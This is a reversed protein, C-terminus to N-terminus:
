VQCFFIKSLEFNILFCGPLTTYHMPDLNYAEMSSLRFRELVDSLLLVDSELYLDQYEGFNQLRFKKWVQQAHFYDEDSIGKQSLQDFFASKPPLQKYEFKKFDNVWEYPFVGKRLLLNFSDEDIHKWKETYYKYLHPFAQKSNKFKSEGLKKLNGVLKELSTNLFNFSDKIELKPLEKNKHIMGISTFKEKM